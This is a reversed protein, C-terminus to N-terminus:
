GAASMAHDIVVAIKGPAVRRAKMNELEANIESVSGEITKGVFPVVLGEAAWQMAYDIGIKLFAKAEPDLTSPNTFYSLMNANLHKAKREALIADVPSTTESTRNTKGPGVGLVIWTGGIKVTKATSVYGQESYTADFVVDVGAGDTHKFIEAEVDDHKYDFVHAAGSSKALAISEATGGSSIVMKAGMARAAMQIALHGVGGGGGPVYLTDGQKVNGHLGKFAALFCLPLVAADRFSLEVPKIATLYDRALAYGSRDRALAYGGGVAWGGDGDSDAMAAVRNGIEFATVNQGKDVVIGSLDFGLVVPPTRRFFNLEALKYDLPNLSSCVVRILVQDPGPRPVPVTITELPLGARDKTYGIGAFTAPVDHQPRGRM